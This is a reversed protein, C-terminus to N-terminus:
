PEHAEAAETEEGDAEILPLAKATTMRELQRRHDPSLVGATEDHKKLKTLIQDLLERNQNQIGLTKLAVYGNIITASAARQITLSRVWQRHHRPVKTKIIDYLRTAATPVLVQEFFGLPDTKPDVKYVKKRPM